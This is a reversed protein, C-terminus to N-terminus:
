KQIDHIIVEMRQWPYDLVKKYAEIAEEITTFAEVYKINEENGNYKGAIVMYSTVKLAMINGELSSLLVFAMVLLM